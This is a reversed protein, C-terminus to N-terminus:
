FSIVVGAAVRDSGSPRGGPEAGNTVYGYDFRISLDRGRTVRVGIGVSGLGNNPNARPYNDRGQAWDMFALARARWKDGIWKGVDPSYVELSAQNGIDNAVEREYFGRVSNWGGMGFQEGPVLADSTYQGNFVARLLIDNPFLQQASAGYRYIQYRAAACNGAGDSRVQCYTSQSSDGGGPVNQSFTAYFGADGAARLFKGAYGISLPRVVYDPLLSGSTGVLVANQAFDRYDLGVFARHEYGELRRLMYTYRGGAVTGKGSVNFLGQVTGSDVDSYGAYVDLIGHYGYFPVRLGAGYIAVDEVNEPATIVQGTFVIDRDAVNAHQYGFGARLNGTQPNGTNDVSISFRQPDNDRARIVADIQGPAGASELAVSVQKAPNENALQIDRGIEPTSPTSGETLSPISARLNAEDFFKNGEVRIQRLKAEVVQLRVQGGRIDQEPVLVRVASYGRTRYAQQLAELARQIDGFDSEAGTFPTLLADIEPQPVLTNGDVVYREIAFRPSDQAAGTGLYFALVLACAGTKLINIL